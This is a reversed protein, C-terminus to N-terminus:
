DSLVILVVYESNQTKLLAEQRPPFEEWVRSSASGGLPREPCGQASICLSTLETGARSAPSLEM